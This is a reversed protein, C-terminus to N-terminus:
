QGNEQRQLRTLSKLNYESSKGNILAKKPLLLKFVKLPCVGFIDLGFSRVPLEYRVTNQYYGNRYDLM